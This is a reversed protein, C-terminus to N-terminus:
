PKRVIGSDHCFYADPQSVYMMRFRDTLVAGSDWLTLAFRVLLRTTDKATERKLAGFGSVLVAAPGNPSVVTLPEVIEVTLGDEVSEMRERTNGKEFRYKVAGTVKGGTATVNALDLIARGPACSAHNERVAGQGSARIRCSCDPALPALRYLGEASLHELLTQLNYQVRSHMMAATHATQAARQAVKELDTIELNKDGFEELRKVLTGIRDAEAGAYKALAQEQRALSRFIELMSQSDDLILIPPIKM